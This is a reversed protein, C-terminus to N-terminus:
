EKNLLPAFLGNGKTTEEKQMDAPIVVEDKEDVAQESGVDEHESDDFLPEGSALQHTFFQRTGRRDSRHSRM